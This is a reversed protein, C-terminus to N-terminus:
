PCVASVPQIDPAAALHPGLTPFLATVEDDTAHAKRAAENKYREMMYYTNDSGKFPAYLVAGPEVRNVVEALKAIATEFEAESGPKVKFTAVYGVEASNCEFGHATLPALATLTLSLFITLFVPISRNKPLNSM